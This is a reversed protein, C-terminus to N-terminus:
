SGLTAKSQQADGKLVFQVPKRVYGEQGPMFKWKRFTSLAEQDMTKSGSSKELAVQTVSGDAEVRGVVTATGTRGHLRDQQPYAFSQNGPAPTLRSADRIEAGSPIGLAEPGQADGAPQLDSDPSPNVSPKSSTGSKEEGAGSKQAPGIDESSTTSGSKSDSASDSESTKPSPSLAPDENKEVAIPHAALYDDDSSKPTETVAVPAAKPAEQEEKVVEPATEKAEIKELLPEAVTKEETKEEPTTNPAAIPTAPEAVDKSESKKLAEIEKAAADDAQKDSAANAEDMAKVEPDASLIPEPTAESSEVKAKAIPAVSTKDTVEKIAVESKETTELEPSLSEPLADKEEVSKKEPLVAKAIPQAKAKKVKVTKIKPKVEAVKKEPAPAAVVKHEIEKVPLEQAKPEPKVAVDAEAKPSTNLEPKPPRVEGEDKSAEPSANPAAPEAPPAENTSTTTDVYAVEGGKGNAGKSKGIDLMKPSFMLVALLGAHALISITLSGLTRLNLDRENNQSM